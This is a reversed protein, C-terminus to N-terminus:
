GYSFFLLDNMKTTIRLCKKERCMYYLYMTYVSVPEEGQEGGAFAIPAICCLVLLSHQHGM